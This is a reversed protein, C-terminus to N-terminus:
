CYPSGWERGGLFLWLEGIEPSLKEVLLNNVSVGTATIVSRDSGAGIAAQQARYQYQQQYQTQQQGQQYHQQNAAPAMTANAGYPVAGAATAMNM